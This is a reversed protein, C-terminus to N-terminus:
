VIATTSCDDKFSLVIVEGGADMVAEGGAIEEIKYDGGKVLISPLVKTILREPTDETFPVVWDVSELGALVAMRHDLSNIPRTPGKLRSVSEDSNVAVLLRDGLTKAEKLYQVHGPHIIDFCGNTMVLSEGREKCERVLQMLEDEDFFAAGGHQESRIDSRLEDSTVTATGLKGVVIGAAINAFATAHELSEGAALATALVSIVTDGAGTVDYVERARTPLTLPEIDRQILTMGKESRTVLLATLDHEELLAKGKALLTEDDKCYGVVAEFEALNPTILTAGRYPAFDTGKPDVLVPTGTKRAAQILRQPDVLAGKNYDSLIVAGANAVQQDFQDYISTLDVNNFAEEFDLRILQQNRSLIRLKTITPSSDHRLFGCNVGKTNLMYELDNANEDDGTIGFLHAKAGLTAINLAVNGAGGARNEIDQVKVVPVPAEPSIRSTPGQWYRDLMVDGFVLVQAQHFNPVQLDM